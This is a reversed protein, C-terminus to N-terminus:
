RPIAPIRMDFINAEDTRAEALSELDIYGSANPGNVVSHSVESSARVVDM